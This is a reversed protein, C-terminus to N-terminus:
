KRRRLSVLLGLLVVAGPLVLLLLWQVSTMQSRTIDLKYEKIPKPGLPGVFQSRDLLWNVALSAFDRNALKHITENGLFISEGCVVLRTAGRDTTVGALRGKEVVTVLPVQGVYDRPGAYPLGRRIDTVVRADPSTFVLPEVSAGEAAPRPGQAKGVSRPVVIYLKSQHLPSTIPHTAFRSVIMDKGTISNEQDYVVNQGVAVGWEALLAGLGLDREASNFNFLALLRGGQKLYRSIRDLEEPLFPDSPGAIILLHCDAPVEPTAALNLKDYKINNQTLLAAFESYGMLKDANDPAHEGHGQLFYAKLSTLSTISLLASTFHMEGKFTTRRVENTRGSILAQTDYDSLEGQTVMKRRGGSDFIVLNKDTVQGLQYRAKAVQAEGPDRTYDVVKLQIRSNAFAYEKLLLWVSEFVPENKDFYVTVTVDNTLMALTRQTFPSLATRTDATLSLRSFHRLGLYNVMLVLAAMALVSLAVSLSVNWRQAASFSQPPDPNM